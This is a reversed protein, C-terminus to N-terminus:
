PTTRRPLMACVDRACRGATFDYDCYAGEACTVGCPAGLPPLPVCTSASAGDIRLCDFGEACASSWDCPEGGAPIRRCVWPWGSTDCGLGPACDSTGTSGDCSEGERLAPVCIAPRRSVDCGLGVSCLGDCTEGLGPIPKCVATYADCVRGPGCSTYSWATDCPDGLAPMVDCTGVPDAGIRECFAGEACRAFCREGPTPPTRCVGPRVADGSCTLEPRCAADSACRAGVEGRPLCQKLFAPQCTTGAGCADSGLTCPTDVLGPECRGGACRLGVACRATESCAEDLAAPAGCVGGLCTEPATCDEDDGCAGGPVVPLACTGAVCAAPAQCLATCPADLAPLPRCVAGDCLGEGDACLGDYGCAEGLPISGALAHLCARYTAFFDRPSPACRDLAREATLRCDALLADDVRLAGARVAAAVANRNAAARCSRVVTRECADVDAPPAGFGPCACTWPARCEAHARVECRLTILADAVPFPDPGPGADRMPTADAIADRIDADRIGADVPAPVDADRAADVPTAGDFGADDIGADREPGADRPSPDPTCASAALLGLLVIATVRRHM